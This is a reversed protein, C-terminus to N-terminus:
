KTTEYRKYVLGLREAYVKVTEHYLERIVLDSVAWDNLGPNKAAIIPTMRVMFARYDIGSNNLTPVSQFGDGFMEKLEQKFVRGVPVEKGDKLKDVRVKAESGNMETWKRRFEGTPDSISYTYESGAARIERLNGTIMFLIDQPSFSFSGPHNHTLVSDPNQQLAALAENSLHVTDADYSTEKWLPKGETTYAGAMEQKYGKIEDEFGLISVRDGKSGLYADESAKSTSNRISKLGTEGARFGRSM